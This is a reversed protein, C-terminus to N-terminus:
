PTYSVQVSLGDLLFDKVGQSAADIVRVQFTGAAFDTLSWVRGWTDTPAGYTIITPVTGTTIATSKMATWTAGGDWSLQVCVNTRGGGNSLRLAAQVEIGDISSVTAPLGLVYGWFRHRDKRPDPTAGTGCSQAGGTGSDKDMAYQGDPTCARSAGTQYGDNDGAGSTDAASSAGVCAIYGTGISTPSVLASVPGDDVSEWGQYFARVTYFYAGPLPADVYSVTTSPTVSAVETYPGAVDTARYVRYGTAWTKPTASWTLTATVGGVVALGSPPALLDTAFAGSSMDASTFLALSRAVGVSAGLLAMVLIASVFARLLVRRARAPHSLLHTAPTLIM